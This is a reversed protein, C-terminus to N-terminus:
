KITNMEVHKAVVFQIDGELHIFILSYQQVNIIIANGLSNTM